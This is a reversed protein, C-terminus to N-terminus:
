CLKLIKGLEFTNPDKSLDLKWKVKLKIDSGDVLYRKGGMLYFYGTVRGEFVLITLFFDGQIKIETPSQVM